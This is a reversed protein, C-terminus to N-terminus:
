SLIGNKSAQRILFTKAHRAELLQMSTVYVQAGLVALRQFAPSEAQTLYTFIKQISNTLEETSGSTKKTSDLAESAASLGELAAVLARRDAQCLSGDLRQLALLGHTMSGSLMSLGKGPRNVSSM